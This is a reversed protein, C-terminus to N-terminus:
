RPSVKIGTYGETNMSKRPDVVYRADNEKLNAKDMLMDLDTIPTHDDDMSVFVDTIRGTGNSYSIGVEVTQRGFWM